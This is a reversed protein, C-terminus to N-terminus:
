CFYAHSGPFNHLLMSKTEAKGSVALMNANLNANVLFRSITSHNWTIDCLGKPQKFSIVNGDDKFLELSEINPIVSAGCSKLTAQIRKEDGAAPRPARKVKRRMSGKGGMRVDESMKQLMELKSM